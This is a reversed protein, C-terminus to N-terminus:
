HTGRHLREGDRNCLVMRSINHLAFIATQESIRVFFMFAIHVVHVPNNLIILPTKVFKDSV